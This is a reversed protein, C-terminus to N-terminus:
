FVGKFCENVENAKTGGSRKNIANTNFLTNYRKQLTISPLTLSTNISLIAKNQRWDLFEEGQSPDQAETVYPIFSIKEDM